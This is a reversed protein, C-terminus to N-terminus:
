RQDDCTTCLPKRDGRDVGLQLATTLRETRAVEKRFSADSLTRWSGPRFVGCRSVAFEVAGFGM